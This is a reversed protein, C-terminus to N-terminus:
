PAVSLDVSWTQDGEKATLTAHGAALEWQFVPDADHADDRFATPKDGAVECRSFGTMRAGYVVRDGCTVVARCDNGPGWTPRLQLDCSAGVELPSPGSKKTVKGKGSVRQTFRLTQENHLLLLATVTPDSLESVEIEVRFSPETDRWVSARGASTNISAQTREGTRAGVDDWSLHHQTEGPQAGPVEGAEHSHQSMGALQDTSRYLSRGGCTVSVETGQPSRLVGRVDCPTGAAPADGTATKIRGKWAADVRRPEPPPAPAPSAAEVTVPDMHPTARAVLIFAAVGALMLLSVLIGIVLAIRPGKPQTARGLAARTRALERELARLREGEQRREELERQATALEGELDAAKQKLADRDDRFAM